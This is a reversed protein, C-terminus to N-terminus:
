DIYFKRSEFFAKNEGGLVAAYLDGPPEYYVPDKKWWEAEEFLEPRKKLYWRWCEPWWKWAQWFGYPIISREVVYGELDSFRSREFWSWQLDCPSAWGHELLKLFNPDDSEVNVRCGDFPLAVPPAFNVNDSAVVRIYEVSRGDSKDRYYDFVVPLPVAQIQDDSCWGFVRDGEEYLSGKQFRLKLWDPLKDFEKLIESILVVDTASAANVLRTIIGKAASRSPRSTNPDLYKQIAARM